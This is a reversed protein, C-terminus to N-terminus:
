TKLNEIIKNQKKIKSRNHSDFGDQFQFTGTSVTVSLGRYTKKIQSSIVRKLSSGKLLNHTAETDM